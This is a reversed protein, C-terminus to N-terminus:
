INNINNEIINLKDIYNYKINKIGGIKQNVSIIHKKLLQIAALINEIQKQRDSIAKNGKKIEDNIADINNQEQFTINKIQLTEENLFAIKNRMINIENKFSYASKGVNKFRSGVSLMKEYQNEKEKSQQNQQNYKLYIRKFLVSDFISKTKNDNINNNM